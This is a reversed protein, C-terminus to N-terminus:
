RIGEAWAKGLLVGSLFELLLPHTYTALAPNAPRILQGALVLLGLAATLVLARSRAAVLLSMAFVLYFFVEYDLTWGPVILPAVIGSPDAHPYFLMSKVVHDLTPQLNPFASPMTIAAAAIVLTVLWYLPIIRAARRTLFSAPTARASIVWMIFGSIVFFVDGGAAGAGFSTGGRQAAHFILVAIAAAARLYQISFLEVSRDSPPKIRRIWPNELQEVAM